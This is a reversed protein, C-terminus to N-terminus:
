EIMRYVDVMPILNNQILHSQSPKNQVPPNIPNLNITNTSPLILQNTIPADNNSKNSSKKRLLPPDETINLKFNIPNNHSDM